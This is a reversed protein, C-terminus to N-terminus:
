SVVDIVAKRNNKTKNLTGTSYNYESLTSCNPTESCKKADPVKKIEDTVYNEQRM